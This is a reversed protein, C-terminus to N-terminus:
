CLLSGDKVIAKMSRIQCESSILLGVEERLRVITRQV